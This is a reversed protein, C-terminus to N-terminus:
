RTRRGLLPHFRWQRPDAAPREGIAIEGSLLCRSRRVPEVELHGNDAARTPRRVDNEIGAPASDRDQPLAVDLRAEHLEVFKVPWLPVAM